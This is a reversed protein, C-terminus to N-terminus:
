CEAVQLALRMTSSGAIGIGVGATDEAARLADFFTFPNVGESVNSVVRYPVNKNM